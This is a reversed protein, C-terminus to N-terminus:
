LSRVEVRTARMMGNHIARSPKSALWEAMRRKEKEREIDRSSASEDSTDTRPSPNSSKGSYPSSTWKRSDLDSPSSPIDPLDELAIPRHRQSITSARVVRRTQHLTTTSQSFSKPSTSIGGLRRPPPPSSMYPALELQNHKDQAFSALSLSVTSETPSALSIYSRLPSTAWPRIDTEESAISSSSYRRPVITALETPPIIHKGKPSEFATTDLPPPTIQSRITSAPIQAENSRCMQDGLTASEGEETALFSRLSMGRRRSNVRAFLCPPSYDRPLLATRADPKPVTTLNSESVVSGPATSPRKIRSKSWIRCNLATLTIGLSPSNGRTPTVNRPLNDPLGSSCKKACYDDSVPLSDAILSQMNYTIFVWKLAAQLTVTESPDDVTRATPRVSALVSLVRAGEGEDTGNINSYGRDIGSRLPASRRDPSKPPRPPSETHDTRDTTQKPYQPSPAIITPIPLPTINTMHRASTRPPSPYSHHNTEFQCQHTSEIFPLDSFNYVAQRRNASSTDKSQDPDGARSSPLMPMILASISPMPEIKPALPLSVSSQNASAYNSEDSHREHLKEDDKRFATRRPPAMIPLRLSDRKSSIKKGFTSEGENEQDLRSSPSASRVFRLSNNRTLKRVLVFKYPLDFPHFSAQDPEPRFEPHHRMPTRGLSRTFLPSHPLSELALFSTSPSLILHKSRSTETPIPLLPFTPLDPISRM